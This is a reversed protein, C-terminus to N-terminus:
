LFQDTNNLLSLILKIYYELILDQNKVKPM